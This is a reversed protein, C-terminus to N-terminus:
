DLNPALKFVTGCGYPSCDGLNGGALTAGYLNGAQDLVLGGNPGWGDTGGTFYHLVTETWSGDSSQALKFVVGCGARRCTKTFPGGFESTGYLNGAEDFILGAYPYRGGARGTFYHLVKYKSAAGASAPLALIVALVALIGCM